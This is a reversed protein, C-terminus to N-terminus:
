VHFPKISLLAKIGKLLDFAKFPKTLYLDAELTHSLNLEEVGDKATLMIVPIWQSDPGRIEKLVEFGDKEPMTVDLTIIDPKVKEVMALGENGNEATFVEYENRELLEKLMERVQLDDEIILIKSM